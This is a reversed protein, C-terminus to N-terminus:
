IKMALMNLLFFATYVKQRHIVALSKADDFKFVM